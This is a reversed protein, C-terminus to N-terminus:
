KIKYIITENEILKRSTRTKQSKSKISKIKICYKSVLQNLLLFYNDKFNDGIPKYKLYKGKIIIYTFGDKKLKRYFTDVDKIKTFDYWGQFYPSPYFSKRNLYFERYGIYNFIEADKPLHKNIWQVGKYYPLKRDLYTEQDIKGMVVPIFQKTFILNVVFGFSFFIIWFSVITYKLLKNKYFDADKLDYIKYSILFILILFYPLLHRTRQIAFIYWLCWFSVMYITFFLILKKQEKSISKFPLLFLPLLLLIPGPGNRGALFKDGNMTMHWLSTLFGWIDEGAPRKHLIINEKMLHNLEVSYDIGGFISYLAPYLPNGTHIYNLIYFFSGTLMVFFTYTFLYKLSMKLSYKNKFLYFVVVFFTIFATFLGYYKISLVAGLFVGSLKFYNTNIEKEKLVEFLMWISLITVVSLAIEVYGASKLDTAMPMIFWISFAFLGINFRNFYYISLKLFMWLLLFNFSYFQLHVLVYDDIVFGIISFAELLHPANYYFFPNYFFSNEEIYRLPIKFHYTLSDTITPPAFVDFLNFLSLWIIIILLLWEFKSLKLEIKSLKVDKLFYLGVVSFLILSYLVINKYLQHIGVLFLIYYTLFIWGLSISVLNKLSKDIDIKFVKLFINGLAYSSLWILTLYLFHIM